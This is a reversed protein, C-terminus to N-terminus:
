TNAGPNSPDALDIVKFCIKDTPEILHIPKCKVEDWKNVCLVEEMLNMVVFLMGYHIPIESQFLPTVHNSQLNGQSVKVDVQIGNITRLQVSGRGNPQINFKLKGSDDEQAKEDGVYRSDQDHIVEWFQHGKSIREVREKSAQFHHWLESKKPFSIPHRGRCVAKSYGDHIANFDPLSTHTQLTKASKSSVSHMEHIPSTLVILISLRFFLGCTTRKEKARGNNPWM